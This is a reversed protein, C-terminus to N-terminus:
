SGDSEAKPSRFSEDIEFFYLIQNDYDIKYILPFREAPKSAEESYEDLIQYEVPKDVNLLDNLFDMSDLVYKRKDTILNLFQELFKKTILVKWLIM